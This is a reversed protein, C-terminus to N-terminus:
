HKDILKTVLAPMLDSQQRVQMNMMAQFEQMQKQQQSMMVKMFNEEKELQMRKVELEEKRFEQLRENKERLYAVTANGNSRKKLKRGENESDDSEKRKKTQGLSEMARNRMDAANEKDQKKQDDVARNESEAADEREILDELANELNTMETEIGSAKEENKIKKRLERSLNNYRDRVARKDVKFFVDQQKNLNEAVKEWKAGKAVTSRKTGSFVDVAFIERCLLEDKEENWIMPEPSKSKKAEAPVSM